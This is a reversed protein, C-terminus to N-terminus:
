AGTRRTAREAENEGWMTPGKKHGGTEPVINQGQLFNEFSRGCMDEWRVKGSELHADEFGWGGKCQKAFGGM